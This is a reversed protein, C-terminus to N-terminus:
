EITAKKIHDLRPFHETLYQNGQSEIMSPDPGAGGMAPMDGYASYLSDVVDMGKIVKGLPAFGQQDLGENNRLNIFLQTSRTRPGATAYTLTGRVNSQKVPDDLLNVNKWQNNLKPDGNIGFQVIFNRVYRFFYCGDYFGMKVLSHLHDVGLPAWDRHMEIVILGKSTDLNIKFVDPAQEQKPPAPTAAIEKKTEEKKAEDSSSCGILALLAPAIWLIRCRRHM